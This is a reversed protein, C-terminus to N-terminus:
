DRWATVVMEDTDKELPRRDFGGYLTWRSYGAAGLLLEMEFRYTWRLTFGVRTTRAAYGRADSEVIEREVELTQNVRNRRTTDYVAVPLGTEVHTVEISLLRQGEDKVIMDFSPYFVNFALLGGPELHERICLLAHIQDETTLLHQFVRFPMTALAYRRPMTFDRVDGRVLRPRLGLTEAKRRLHDLMGPDLDLGEADAGAQLTPILVRGTGCGIELVPGGAASATEVYFPIDDRVKSYVLDYLAPDTYPSAYPM